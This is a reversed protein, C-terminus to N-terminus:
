DAKAAAKVAANPPLIKKLAMKYLPFPVYLLFGYYGVTHYVGWWKSASLFVFPVLCWGMGVLTYFKLAGYVVVSVLPQGIFSLFADNRLLVSQIQAFFLRM